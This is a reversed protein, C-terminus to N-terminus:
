RVWRLPPKIRRRWLWGLLPLLLTLPLVPLPLAVLLGMRAAVPAAVLPMVLPRGVLPRLPVAWVGGLRLAGRVGLLLLLMALVLLVRLPVLLVGLVGLMVGVGVVADVLLPVALEGITWLASLLGRAAMVALRRPPAAALGSTM